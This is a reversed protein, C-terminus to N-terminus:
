HQFKKLRFLFSAELISGFLTDVDNKPPTVQAIETGCNNAITQTRIKQRSRLCPPLYQHACVHSRCHRAALTPLRSPTFYPTSTAQKSMALSHNGCDGAPRYPIWRDSPTLPATILCMKGIQNPNLPPFAIADM